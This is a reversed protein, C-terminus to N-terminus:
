RSPTRAGNEFWSQTAENAAFMLEVRLASAYVDQVSGFQAITSFLSLRASQTRIITPIVLTDAPAPTDRGRLRPHAALRAAFGELTADGGFHAIEARLRTTTVAAVVEWNEIIQGDGLALLLEILNFRGGLSHQLVGAAEFMRNAGGNAAVVQWHQDLAVGPFPDHNRLMAEIASRIPALEPADPPHAPYHPAFGAAGLAQNTASKPMDLADALRMIMGRSPAARGTELFSLHRASLEARLALDLQSVRRVARWEKLISGFAASM